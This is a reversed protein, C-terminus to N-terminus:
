STRRPGTKRTSRPPPACSATGALGVVQYLLYEAFRPSSVQSDMLEKRLDSSMTVTEDGVERLNQEYYGRALDSANQLMGRASDSFWFQVGYQFLLSAFIVVLLMPVSAVISFIAVLRVHLQGESGIASQAARRKAVRRGLFVLLAIAPVLNAVLLLAVIPPTLLTYSQGSGSLIHYTLGAMGLFLVLTVGEVLAALRGNRLALSFSRRWASARRPLTTAGNM